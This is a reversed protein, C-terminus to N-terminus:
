ARAELWTVCAAEGVHLQVGDWIAPVEGGGLETLRALHSEFHVNRFSAPKGLGLELIRKRVVGSSADGLRHFLEFPGPESM